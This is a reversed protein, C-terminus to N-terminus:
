ALPRQDAPVYEPVVDRLKELEAEIEADLEARLLRGPEALRALAEVASKAPLAKLRMGVAAGGSVLARSVETLFRGDLGSKRFVPALGRGKQKRPDREDLFLSGILMGWRGDGLPKGTAKWVSQELTIEGAAQRIVLVIDEPPTGAKVQLALLANRATVAAAESSYVAIMLESM